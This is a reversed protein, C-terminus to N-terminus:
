SKNSKKNRRDERRRLMYDANFELCEDCRCKKKYYSHYTGHVEKRARVDKHTKCLLCMHELAETFKKESLGFVKAFNVRQDLHKSCVFLEERNDVECNEFSCKNGLAVFAEERRTHYRRRFYTRFDFSSM